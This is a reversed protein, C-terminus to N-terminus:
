SLPNRHEDIKVVLTHEPKSGCPGDSYMPPLYAKYAPMYRSVFDAIQEDSMGPKGEERMAIEAQLRWKYVWHPEDVEIVIWSGIFKEWADYYSELNRNVSELQPDISKVTDDPLPKFGLMWGELFIVELPGEIEPWTSPDARDGLGNYASKDYRPVKAKTGKEVLSCLTKLTDTGFALDHSGANGRLELLANGANEAALKAQDARTLYFDDISISAAKRGAVNFLHDLTYVLTTKGSGQPASVGIVLPPIHSHGDHQFKDRHHSLQRQCWLYVPAYYHFVRAKQEPTLLHEDFGLLRCVRSGCELWEGINDESVEVTKEVLPGGRIFTYLDAMAGANVTSPLSRALIKDSRSARDGVFGCQSTESTRVNCYHFNKVRPNAFTARIRPAARDSAFFFQPLKGRNKLNPNSQNFGNPTLKPASNCLHADLLASELHM